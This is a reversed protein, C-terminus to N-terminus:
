KPADYYRRNQTDGALSSPLPAPKGAKAPKESKATAAAAGTAAAATATAPAPDPQGASSQLVVGKDIMPQLQGIDRRTSACGAMALAAALGFVSLVSSTRM